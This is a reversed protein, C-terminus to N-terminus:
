KTDENTLQQEVKQLQKRLKDAERQKLESANRKRYKELINSFNDFIPKSNELKWYLSSNPSDSYDPKYSQLEKFFDQFLQRQYDYDQGFIYAGTPFGIKMCWENMPQRGDDSWSISYGNGDEHDKKADQFYIFAIYQSAGYTDLRLHRVRYPKLNHPLKLGYKEYWEILMLHNKAKHEMEKIDGFDSVFREFDKSYKGCIKAVEEYAKKWVKVNDDYTQESM